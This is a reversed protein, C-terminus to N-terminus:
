RTGVLDGRSGTALREFFALYDQAIRSWSFNRIAEPLESSRGSLLATRLNAATAQRNQTDCLFPAEKGLIWRLRESEQAVIPLGCAWAELFVNGFSELMSMHLFVDSSRYLAPMDSASLSVRIFRDPLLKRALAEAEGRLPGDGAVVLVADDLEAVARIGDLVRKSEIMASVMLVIPQDLPLGLRERESKGPAFKHLDIGNPILACNRVQKNREYYDPNTCVLGDCRFTRFEGDNSFAPWDGNQTVFIQLPARKTRRRLAWHTFPFSCTVVFDYNEPRYVRMMALAFTADEWATESRLPPFSPFREFRERRVSPVEVFDYRSKARTSGSGMVTVDAGTEALADAVSLLAVEAGREYRHFGPLAFLVKM